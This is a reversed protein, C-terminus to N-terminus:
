AMPPVERIRELWAVLDGMQSFDLLDEGLAELQVLSLGRIRQQLTPELEGFLRTLQRMVMALAEQQM